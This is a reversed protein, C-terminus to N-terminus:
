IHIGRVPRKLLLFRGALVISRFHNPEALVILCEKENSNFNAMHCEKRAKCERACEIISVSHSAMSVNSTTNLSVDVSVNFYEQSFSLTELAQSILMFLQIKMTLM